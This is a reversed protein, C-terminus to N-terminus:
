YEEKIQCQKMRVSKYISILIDRLQKIHQGM